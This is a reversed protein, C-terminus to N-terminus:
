KELGYEPGDEAVKSNFAEQAILQGSYLDEISFCLDYDNWVLNGYSIEFAKFREADLYKRIGPQDSRSLFPEFDLERQTGDSFSIDLKLGSVWVADIINLEIGETISM